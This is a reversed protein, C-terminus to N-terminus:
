SAAIICGGILIALLVFAGSFIGILLLTVRQEHAEATQYTEVSIRVQSALTALRPVARDLAETLTADDCAKTAQVLDDRLQIEVSRSQDLWGGDTTTFLDLRSLALDAAADPPPPAPRRSACRRARRHSTSASKSSRAFSAIDACHWRPIKM